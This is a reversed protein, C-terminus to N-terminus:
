HGIALYFDVIIGGMQRMFLNWSFRSGIRASKQFIEIYFLFGSAM